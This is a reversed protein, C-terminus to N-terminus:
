CTQCITRNALLNDDVQVLESNDLGELVVDVLVIYTVVEEQKKKRRIYGCALRELDLDASTSLLLTTDLFDPVALSNLVSQSVSDTALCWPKPHTIRLNDKVHKMWQCGCSPLLIAQVETGTLSARM